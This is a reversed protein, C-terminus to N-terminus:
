ADRESGKAPHAVSIRGVVHIGNTPGALSAGRADLRVKAVTPGALAAGRADLRVKAVTPGALSAGRAI